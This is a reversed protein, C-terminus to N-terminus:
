VNEFKVDEDPPESEGTGTMQVTADAESPGQSPAAGGDGGLSAEPGAFPPSSPSPAASSAPGPAIGAGAGGETQAMLEAYNDERAEPKLEWTMAYPGSRILQAVMELKQKLYAEPQRLEEKLRRFPWYRYRRFCAYILSLLEQEPLRATKADSIKAKAPKSAQIFSSKEAEIASKPNRMNATIRELFITTKKPIAAERAMVETIRDFEENQVPQCLFEDHVKGVIATSKPITKRIYPEWRKPRKHKKTEKKMQEYLYSRGHTQAENFLVNAKDVHGPLDKESFIFTNPVVYSRTSAVMQRRFNYDRPVNPGRAVDNVRLSVRKIDEPPGEVRITGIEIEEDMDLKSWSDWLSRPLRALWVDQSAHSFDLDGADEYIDDLLPETKVALEESSAPRPTSAGTDSDPLAM